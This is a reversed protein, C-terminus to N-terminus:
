PRRPFRQTRSSSYPRNQISFRTFSGGLASNATGSVLCARAALLVLGIAVGIWIFLVLREQEKSPATVGIMYHFFRMMALLTKM